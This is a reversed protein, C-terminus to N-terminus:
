DNQSKPRKVQGRERPKTPKASPKLIRDIGRFQRDEQEHEAQVERDRTRRDRKNAKLVPLPDFHRWAPMSVLFSAVLSGGRLIWAVFGASLAAGTFSTLRGILHTQREREGMERELDDALRSLREALKHGVTLMKKVPLSLPELWRPLPEQLAADPKEVRVFKQSVLVARKVPEDVADVTQIQVPPLQLVPPTV